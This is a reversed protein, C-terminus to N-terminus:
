IIKYFIQKSLVDSDSFLVCSWFCYNNSWAFILYTSRSRKIRVQPWIWWCTLGESTASNTRHVMSCWSPSFCNLSLANLKPLLMWYSFSLPSKWAVMISWPTQVTIKLRNPTFHCILCKLWCIMLNQYASKRGNQFFINKLLICKLLWIGKWMKILNCIFARGSQIWIQFKIKKWIYTLTQCLVIDLCNVTCLSSRITLLHTGM